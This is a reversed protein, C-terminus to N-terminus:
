KNLPKVKLNLKNIGPIVPQIGQGPPLVHPAAVATDRLRIARANLSDFLEKTIAPHAMYYEYSKAFAEKSTQNLQFVQRYRRIRETNLNKTSDRTFANATFEDTQMLQWLITQMQQPPIIGKPVKDRGCSLLLCSCVLVLIYKM